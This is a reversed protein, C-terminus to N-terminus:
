VTLRHNCVVGEVGSMDVDRCAMIAALPFANEGCVFAQWDHQSGKGIEVM